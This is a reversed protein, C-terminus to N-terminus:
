KEFAARHHHDHGLRTSARVRTMGAREQKAQQRYSDTPGMSERERVQRSLPCVLLSPMDMPVLAASWSGGARANGRSLMEALAANPWCGAVDCGSCRSPKTGCRHHAHRDMALALVCSQIVTSQAMVWRSQVCPEQTAVATLWGTPRFRRKRDTNQNSAVRGALRRWDSAHGTAQQCDWLASALASHVRKKDGPAGSPHKAHSTVRAANAERNTHGNLLEWTAGRTKNPKPKPKM